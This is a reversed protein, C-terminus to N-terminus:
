SEKRKKLTEVRRVRRRVRRKGAVKEEVFEAEEKQIDAYTSSEGEPASITLFRLLSSKLRLEEDFEKMKEAPFTYQLVAYFGSDMKNIPYALDRKGWWDSFSVEGGFGKIRAKLTEFEKQAATEALEPSLLFMSEYKKM